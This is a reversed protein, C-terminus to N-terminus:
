RPLKMYHTIMWGHGGNVLIDSTYYWEKDEQDFYGLNVETINDQPRRYDKTKIIYTDEDEPPTDVSIWESTEKLEKDLCFRVLERFKGSSIEERELMYALDQLLWSIHGYKKNLEKSRIQWADYWALINEDTKEQPFKYYEETLEEWYERKEM